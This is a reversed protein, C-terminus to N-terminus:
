ASLAVDQTHHARARILPEVLHPALPAGVGPGSAHAVRMDRLQQFQAATDVGVVTVEVTLSRAVRLIAPVAGKDDDDDSDDDAALLSSAAVTIAEFPHRALGALTGGVHRHGVGLRVGVARLSALTHATADDIAACLRDDLDLTLSSPALGTDRLVRHLDDVFEGTLRQARSVPLHLVLSARGAAGAHWGAMLACAERVMWRELPVILGCAEATPLFADAPLVGRSPSQWCVDAKFGSVEGTETRVVPAFELAFEGRELAWRLDTELLFDDDMRRRLAPTFRECRDGGLRKAHRLAADAEGLVDDPRTHASTAYALGISASLVVDNGGIQYPSRVAALLREAVPVAESAESLDVVLTFEDGGMRALAAPADPALQRTVLDTTRLATEMRRAVEILVHDGTSHGFQENVLSFRDIDLALVALTRPAVPGPRFREELRDVCSARNPLGTLPDTFRSHTRDVLSGAVRAPRGAHDCSAVGTMRVWRFSGDRHALRHESVFRPTRGQLHADCEARVRAGDAEHVRRLWADFTADADADADGWGIGERWEKSVRLHGTSVNWDWLGEVAAPGRDFVRDQARRASESRCCAVHTRIRVMAVPITVPKTLYDNAGLELAEVVDDSRESATVMIVPLQAASARQRIVQLTELGSMGPMMVDLLVLDVPQTRMLHLAEPGSNARRVTYGAGELCRALPDMLVPEDDVLLLARQSLSEMELTNPTGTRRRLRVQAAECRIPVKVGTDLGHPQAPVSRAVMPM